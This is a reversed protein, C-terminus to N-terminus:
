VFIQVLSFKGSYPVRHFVAKDCMTMGVCCLAFTGKRGRGKEKEELSEGRSEKGSRWGERRGKKM